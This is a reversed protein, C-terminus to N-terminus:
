HRKLKELMQMRRLLYEARWMELDFVQVAIKMM